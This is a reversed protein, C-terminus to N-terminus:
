GEAGTPPEADRWAVARCARRLYLCWARVTERRLGYKRALARYGLGGREHDARVAEVLEDSYRARHHAEGIPGGYEGLPVRNANRVSGRSPQWSPLKHM